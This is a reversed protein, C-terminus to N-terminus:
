KKQFGTKKKAQKCCRDLGIAAISGIDESM